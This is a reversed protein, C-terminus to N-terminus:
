KKRRRKFPKKLEQLPICNRLYKIKEIEVQTSYHKELYVKGAIGISHAIVCTTVLCAMVVVFFDTRFHLTNM